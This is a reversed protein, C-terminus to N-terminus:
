WSADYGVLSGQIRTLHGCPALGFPRREAHSNRPTLPRPPLLHHRTHEVRGDAIAHVSPPACVVLYWCLTGSWLRVARRRPVARFLHTRAPTIWGRHGFAHVRRKTPNPKHPTFTRFSVPSWPCSGDLLARAALRSVRHCRRREERWVGSVDDRQSASFLMGESFAPIKSRHAGCAPSFARSKQEGPPRVKPRIARARSALEGSPVHASCDM